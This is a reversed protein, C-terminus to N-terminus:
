YGLFNLFYANKSCLPSKKQRSSNQVVLKYPRAFDGGSFFDGRYRGFCPVKDPRKTKLPNRAALFTSKARKRCMKGACRAWFLWLFNTYGHPPDGCVFFFMKPKQNKSSYLTEYGHLPDGCWFIYMKPKQGVVMFVRQVWSPDRARSFSCRRNKTKRKTRMGRRTPHAGSRGGSRQRRHEM